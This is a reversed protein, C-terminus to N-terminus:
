YLHAEIQGSTVPLKLILRLVMTDHRSIDFLFCYRKVTSLLEIKLYNHLIITNLRLINFFAFLFWM